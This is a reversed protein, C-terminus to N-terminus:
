QVGMGYKTTLLHNYCIWEGWVDDRAAGTHQGWKWSQMITQASHVEWINRYGKSCSCRRARLRPFRRRHRKVVRAMRVPM